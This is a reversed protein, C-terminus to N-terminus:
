WKIVIVPIVALVTAGVGVGAHGTDDSSIASAATAAFGAAALTGLVIHINYDSFGEDMDFCDGYEAYGTACAAIAMLAAAIGAGKHLANDGGSVGAVGACLLTGYGLYKHTNGMDSSSIGSSKDPSSTDIPMIDQSSVNFATNAIHGMNNNLYQNLSVASSLGPVGMVSIILFFLTMNIKQNITM